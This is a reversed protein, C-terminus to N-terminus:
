SLPRHIGSVFSLLLSVKFAYHQHLSRKQSVMLYYSLHMRLPLSVQLYEPSGFIHPLPKWQRADDGRHEFALCALELAEEYKPYVVQLFICTQVSILIISM